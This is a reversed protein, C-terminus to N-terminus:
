YDPLYELRCGTSACMNMFLYTCIHFTFAVRIHKCTIARVLCYLCPQYNHPPLLASNDQCDNTLLAHKLHAFAFHRLLYNTSCIRCCLLSSSHKLINSHQMNIPAVTSKLSSSIWLCIFLYENLWIFANLLAKYDVYMSVVYVCVYIHSHVYINLRQKTHYSRRFICCHFHRFLHVCFIFLGYAKQSMSGRPLVWTCVYGHIRAPMTYVVQWYGLWCVCFGQYNEFDLWYGYCEIVIQQQCHANKWRRGDM